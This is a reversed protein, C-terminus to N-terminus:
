AFICTEVAASGMAAVGEQIKRKKSANFRWARSLLLPLPKDYELTYISLLLEHPLHDPDLFGPPPPKSLEEDDDDDTEGDEEDDGEKIEIEASNGTTIVPEADMKVDEKGNEAGAFQSFIAHDDKDLMPKCVEEFPLYEYTVPDLLYSPSYEAKYKM